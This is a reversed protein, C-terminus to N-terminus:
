PDLSAASALSSADPLGCAWAGHIQQNCSDQLLVRSPTRLVARGTSLLAGLDVSSAQSWMGPIAGAVHVYTHHSGDGKNSLVRTQRQPTLHECSARCALRHPKHLQLVFHRIFCSVSGGCGRSVRCVKVRVTRSGRSHGLFDPKDM